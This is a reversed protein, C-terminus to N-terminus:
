PESQTTTGEAGLSALYPVLKTDFCSPCIDYSRTTTFRGEPWQDGEEHRVAVSVETENVRYVSTDWRDRGVTRKCIDCILSACHRETITRQREEYIRAM